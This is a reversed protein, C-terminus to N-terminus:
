LSDLTVEHIFFKSEASHEAVIDLESQVSLLGSCCCCCRLESLWGTVVANSQNDEETQRRM